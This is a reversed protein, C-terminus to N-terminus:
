VTHMVLSSVLVNSQFHAQPVSPMELNHVILRAEHCTVQDKKQLNTAEPRKLLGAQTTFGAHLVILGFAVATKGCGMDDGLFGGSVGRDAEAILM